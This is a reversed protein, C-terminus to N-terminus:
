IDFPDLFMRIAERIMEGLDLYGQDEMVRELRQLMSETVLIEIKYLDVVEEEKKEEKEEEKKNVEKPM